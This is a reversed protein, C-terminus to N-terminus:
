SQEEEKVITVRETRIMHERGAAYGNRAVFKVWQVGHEDEFVECGNAFFVTDPDIYVRMRYGLVINAKAATAVISEIRTAYADTDLDGTIKVDDIVHCVQDYQEKPLRNM